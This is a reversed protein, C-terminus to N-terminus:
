GCKVPLYNVLDNRGFAPRFADPWDFRQQVFFGKGLNMQNAIVITREQLMEGFPQLNRGGDMGHVDLVWCVM